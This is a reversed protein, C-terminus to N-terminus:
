KDMDYEYNWIIVWLLVIRGYGSDYRGPFPPRVNTQGMKVLVSVLSYQFNPLILEIWIAM